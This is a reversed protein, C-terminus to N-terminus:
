RSLKYKQLILSLLMIGLGVGNLCGQAFDTLKIFHSIILTASMFLMGVPLLLLRLNKGKM